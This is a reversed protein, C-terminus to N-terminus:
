TCYLVLVIFINDGLFSRMILGRPRISLAGSKPDPSQLNSDQRPRRDINQKACNKDRVTPLKTISAHIPIMWIEKAAKQLTYM